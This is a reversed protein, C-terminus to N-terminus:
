DDQYRPHDTCYMFTVRDQRVLALGDEKSSFWFYTSDINVLRNNFTCCKGRGDLYEINYRRGLVSDTDENLKLMM